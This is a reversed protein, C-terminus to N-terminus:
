TNIRLFPLNCTNLHYITFRFKPYKLRDQGSSSQPRTSLQRAAHELYLLSSLARTDDGCSRM